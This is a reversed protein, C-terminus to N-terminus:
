IKQTQIERGFLFSWFLNVLFIIQAVGFMIRGIILLRVPTEFQAKFMEPWGPSPLDVGDGV